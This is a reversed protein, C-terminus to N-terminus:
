VYPKNQLDAEHEKVYLRFREESNYVTMCENVDKKIERCKFPALLGEEKICEAFAGVQLDCKKMADAKFDKRLQNEAFHRFSLRGERGTDKMAGTDSPPSNETSSM